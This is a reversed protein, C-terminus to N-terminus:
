DAEALRRHEQLVEPLLERRGRGLGCEASVGSIRAFRRALALKRANRAADNAHVLGLYLATHDPLKLDRLPRFYADDNKDRPVPMHLYRVPRKVHSLVGNAIEVLVGMDEPQVMHEDQPSGYCFHYGVDVEAPVADGIRGLMHFVEEKYGRYQELYGEWLLVEQCVDWQYSIREHPLAKAIRDVEGLLHRSYTDLFTERIKPSVFMLAIAHPTASCVQYKLHKPIVGDRQLRDFIQFNRIADDAYGTVFTVKKPEVGQKFSLREIAFVLKGDWQRFELVPVGSDVEFDPHMRLQDAIFSIWRRRRGTEGDPVRELQKGLADCVTRFASEADEVPLSGVMHVILSRSEDASV